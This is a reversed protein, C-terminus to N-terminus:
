TVPHSRFIEDRIWEKVLSSVLKM